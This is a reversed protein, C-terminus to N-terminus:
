KDYFVGTNLHDGADFRAQAEHEGASVAGPNGRRQWNVWDGCEQVVLDSLTKGGWKTLFREIRGRELEANRANEAEIRDSDPLMRKMMKRM